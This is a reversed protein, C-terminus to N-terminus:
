RGEFTPRRKEIFAAMGERADQTAFLLYFCKREFELGESLSQEFSRLVAEKALKLSLPPLACLKRALGLAEPMLSEPPVVRSVLGLREADQATIPDGTLVMEMARSKGVARVLRQTGGAGPILGVKIEPQGFRATESAVIIDCAMALECGGGLAWGSVAAIVPKSVTRIREWVVMRSSQMLTVPTEGHMEKLDAGAAFNGEAGTLVLVKVESDRELEGLAAALEEMTAANLANLARPRNLTVIGVAEDRAVLVNQYAM